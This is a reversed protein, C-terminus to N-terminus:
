ERNQQLAAGAVQAFGSDPGFSMVTDGFFNKHQHCQLEKPTEPSLKIVVLYIRNACMRMNRLRCTWLACKCSSCHYRLGYSVIIPGSICSVRGMITCKLPTPSVRAHELHVLQQMNCVLPALEHEPVVYVRLPEKKQGPVAKRMLETCNYSIADAVQGAYAQLTLHMSPFSSYLRLVDVQVGALDRGSQVLSCNPM